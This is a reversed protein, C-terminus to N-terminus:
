VVSKRDVSAMTFDSFTAGAVVEQAGDETLAGTPTGNFIWSILVVAIMLIYIISFSTLMERKKKPKAEEAM